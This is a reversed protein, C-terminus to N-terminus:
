ALGILRGLFVRIFGQLPMQIVEAFSSSFVDTFLSSFLGFLQDLVFILLDILNTEASITTM